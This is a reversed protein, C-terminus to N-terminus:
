ETQISLSAAEALQDAEENLPVGTHGRVWNWKVNHIQDQKHLRKWLDPNKAYRWNKKIWKHIWETIGKVVYQSDSYLTVDCPSKLAELSKIAAMLEMRNNTTDPDSGSIDRRHEGYLLVAGWGGPGPNPYCSGDTWIEVHKRSM